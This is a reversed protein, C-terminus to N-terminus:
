SWSPPNMYSLCCLDSQVGHRNDVVAFPLSVIIIHLPARNVIKCQFCHSKLRLPLPPLIHPVGLHPHQADVRLWDCCCLLDLSKAHRCPYSFFLAACWTLLNLLGAPAFSLATGSGALTHLDYNTAYGSSNKFFIMVLDTIKCTM